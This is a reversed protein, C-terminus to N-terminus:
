HPPKDDRSSSDASEIFRGISRLRERIGFVVLFLLIPILIVAYVVVGVRPSVLFLGALVMMVSGGILFAGALPTNDNQFAGRRRLYLSLALAATSSALSAFPFASTTFISVVLLAGALLSFYKQTPNM